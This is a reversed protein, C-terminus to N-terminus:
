FTYNFSFDINNQNFSIDPIIGLKQQLKENYREVAQRVAHESYKFKYLLSFTVVLDIVVGLLSACTLGVCVVGTIIYSTEIMNNTTQNAIFIISTLLFLTSVGGLVGATTFGAIRIRRLKKENKLLVPDESLKLFESFKFVEDGKKFYFINTNMPYLVDFKKKIELTIKEKRYIEKKQENNLNKDQEVSYTSFSFIIIFFSFILFKRINIFNYM